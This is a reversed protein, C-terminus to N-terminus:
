AGTVVCAVGPVRLARTADIAAIEAHPHPSRLIVAHLTARPVPVDDGYRGRGTLLDFDEIRRVSRGLTGTEERTDNMAGRQRKRMRPRHRLRRLCATGRSGAAVGARQNSSRPEVPGHRLLGWM